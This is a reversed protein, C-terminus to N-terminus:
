IMEGTLDCDIHDNVRVRILEGPRPKRDPATFFVCPDVEPADFPSRGAFCDAYRDFGDVLVDIETGIQTECWADMILAEQETIIEARRNKIEEDIQGDMLAAPTDEEQSYAFCGLREFRAQAVFDSLEEFDEDTEGPFGAILTTRLIVGPIKERIHQILTLLSEKDGRRNMARLVRGSCHQLPLDIYKVIKEEERITDLLEDTLRDPYCYLVRIWELGDIQCLKRLLEALKLEGYLDLGYRTTDQAIVNLEKVGNRVLRKAEEIINEMKRSRYGGRILPIACYTCCNDCGDAIKLYAWHQETSQVRGGEMPLLMKDPFDEIKKGNLAQQVVTGIDANKGIGIVADVESLEKMIESNYREALCGTVIIAKIKGEKKLQALELIEDISEQKASEIFGCTNVIVADATAHDQKLQFGAQNLQYMMMEADVRNKACGLSVIGVSPM